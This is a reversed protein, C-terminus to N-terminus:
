GNNSEESIIKQIEMHDPIFLIKNKPFLELFHKKFNNIFLPARSMNYKVVLTEGPLLQVRKLDEVRIKM